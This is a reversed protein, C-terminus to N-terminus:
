AGSPLSGSLRIFAARFGTSCGAVDLSLCPIHPGGGCVPDCFRRSVVLGQSTRTRHGAAIQRSSTRGPDVEATFRSWESELSRKLSILTRTRELKAM